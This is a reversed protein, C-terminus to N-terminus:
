GQDDIGRERLHLYVARGPFDTTVLFTKLVSTGINLHDGLDDEDVTAELGHLATGAITLAPLVVLHRHRPGGIGGGQRTGRSRLKMRDWLVRTVIAESGNGFDLTAHVEHGSLRVPIEEIGQRTSLPLRVGLAQRGAPLQEIRGAPIDIQFRGSDFFERGLVFRTDRRLLRGSIESLDTVVVERVGLDVGLAALRVGSAIRAPAKGGTGRIAVAQGAGIGATRALRPDVLSMEAGSDLLAETAQGNVSAEVYLRGHVVKLPLAEAALASLLFVLSV